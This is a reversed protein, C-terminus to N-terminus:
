RDWKRKYKEENELTIMQDYVQQLLALAELAEEANCAPQRNERIATIFETNQALVHDSLDGTDEFLTDGNLTVNDSSVTLTGNECIFLNGGAGRQANYSLSITAIAESAYRILMSVDLSTGINPHLPTLEGRIRRAPAGITWLSYDVLHCGHHFVVDDVWSRRYGTWGVNEHRLSFSYSHHQYIQGAKGSAIFDKVFRGIPDFRRTHAVMVRRGTKRALGVLESAGKHSLSLPIEVLVDKGAELAKATQEYHHESPSGIVVADIDPDRLADEYRTTAKEFGMKRQFEEAPEARRGVVTHLRVGPIKKLAETHFVAIGGYGVLCCTIPQM